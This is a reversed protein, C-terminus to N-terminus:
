NESDHISRTHTPNQNEVNQVREDVTNLNRLLLEMKIELHAKERLNRPISSCSRPLYWFTMM